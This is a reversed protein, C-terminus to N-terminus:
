CKIIGKMQENVEPTIEQPSIRCQRNERLTDLREKLGQTGNPAVNVAYAGKLDRTMAAYHQAGNCTGDMPIAIDVVADLGDKYYKRMQECAALFLWPEDSHMWDEKNAIPDEAVRMILDSNMVTWKIRDQWSKKDMGFTNATHVMLWYLAEKTGIAKGSGFKILAKQLTVGQTTLGSCMPYMRGRWDLNHPFYLHKFHRYENAVKIATSIVRNKSKKSTMEKRWKIYQVLKFRAEELKQKTKYKEGNTIKLLMDKVWKSFGKGEEKRKEPTIGLAKECEEITAQLNKTRDSHPREPLSEFFKKFCLDTEALENAVDLVFNNVTFATAQVKNVSEYVKPIAKPGHTRNNIKRSNRIFPQKLKPDWYGGENLGVWPKPPIVIPRYMVSLEAMLSENLDEWAYFAETAQVCYIAHEGKGILAVEFHEDCNECLLKILKCGIRAKDADGITEDEIFNNALAIATSTLETKDNTIAMIVRRITTLSLTMPDYQSLVKVTIPKRGKSEAECHETIAKAMPKLLEKVRKMTVESDMKRGSEKIGEQRAMFRDFGQSQMNNELEVNAAILDIEEISSDTLQQIMDRDFNQEILAAVQNYNRM